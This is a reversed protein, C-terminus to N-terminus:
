KRMFRATLWTAARYQVERPIDPPSDLPGADGAAAYSVFGKHTAGPLTTVRSEAPLRALLRSSPLTMWVALYCM